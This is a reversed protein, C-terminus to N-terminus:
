IRVSEKRYKGRVLSCGKSMAASWWKLPGSDYKARM